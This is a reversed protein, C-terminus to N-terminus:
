SCKQIADNVLLRIYGDTTLRSGLHDLKTFADGFSSSSSNSGSRGLIPALMHFYSVTVGYLFVMLLAYLIMSCYRLCNFPTDM